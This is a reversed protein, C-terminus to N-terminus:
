EVLVVFIQVYLCLRGDEGLDIIRIAYERRNGFFAYIKDGIKDFNIFKGGRNENLKRTKVEGRTQGHHM